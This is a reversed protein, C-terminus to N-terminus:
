EKSTLIIKYNGSKNDPNKPFLKTLLKIKLRDCEDNLLKNESYRLVRFDDVRGMADLFIVAIV